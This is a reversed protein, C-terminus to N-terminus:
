SGTYGIVDSGGISGAASFYLPREAVIPGTSQVFMSDEYGQSHDGSHYLYKLVYSNINVTLRSHAVVAQTFTYSRGYGNILTITATENNNTPNQLTLWEIFGPATYGEAFALISAQAPGPMGTVDTVGTGSKGGISLKFFEEREVVIKAGTSSIDISVDGPQSHASVDWNTQSQPGVSLTVTNVSGNPYELNISVNATNSSDLNAIILNEQFGPDVHGEAFLWDNNPASAGVVSAAGSINGAQGAPFSNFYTPREVVVPQDSTVVAAVLQSAPPPAITGRSGAPVSTTQPTGYVQGGAYYTATVHATSGGPPNLITIFSDSGKITPLDAFYFSTNLHTAGIVDTGSSSGFFNVYYLPREVVVGSCSSTNSVKVITSVYDVSSSNQAIGLDANVSETYRTNKPVVRSINVPSKGTLLYDFNINCAYNPNPNEVTLWGQFGQGVKGEAFYWTQSVPVKSPPPTPSPSPTSSPTNTPSPQPQPIGNNVGEGLKRAFEETFWLNGNKDLALGDHPHANLQYQDGNDVMYMAFYGGGPVYAGVRANEADDFWITGQNDVAIGSIHTNCGPACSAPPVIYKTVGNSTGPSAQSIVLKGIEGDPGETWWINGSTDYTIMHPTDAGYENITHNQMTGSSTPIFSAIKSVSSSNETFWIAGTGPDPGTIGYPRSGGTPTPTEHFQQSAPDFEGIQNAWEETFWLHGYHDFVLDFPSAQPTPVTWQNWTGNGPNYEGIANTIPESFWINGSGDIALFFPSSYGAPLAIDKLPQSGSNFGNAAYETLRGTTSPPPNCIPWGWVYADCQPDAIWVNGGPDFSVGWPNMDSQPLYVENITPDAHAAKHTAVLVLSFVGISALVFFLALFLRTKGNFTNGLFFSLGTAKARRNHSNGLMRNENVGSM